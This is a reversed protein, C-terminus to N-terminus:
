LVQEQRGFHGGSLDYQL